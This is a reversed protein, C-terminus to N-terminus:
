LLLTKCALAILVVGGLSEIRNGLYTHVYAGFRLAVLSLIFTVFGICTVALPISVPVFSFTVGVVLADISTAVAMVTLTYTEALHREKYEDSADDTHFSEYMMKCGVGFLLLFGVIHGYTLAYSAVSAGLLWGILPMGFQFGGFFLAIKLAHEYSIRSLAAAAAAIAVADLSLSVATLFLEIPSM